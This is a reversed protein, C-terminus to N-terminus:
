ETQLLPLYSTSFMRLESVGAETAFWINGRSDVAIDHITNSALGEATTYV